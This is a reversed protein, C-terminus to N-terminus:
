GGMIANIEEESLGLQSLKEIARERAAIARQKKLEKESRIAALEESKAIKQEREADTLEVVTSEGTTVNIVLKTYESM